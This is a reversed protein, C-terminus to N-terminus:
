AFFRPIAGDIPVPIYTSLNPLNGTVINEGSTVWAHAALPGNAQKAVGIVGRYPLGAFRLLVAAAFGRTLCPSRSVRATARDVAERIQRIKNIAASPAGSSPALATSEGAVKYIRRFPVVSCILRASVLLIWAKTFLFAKHWITAM